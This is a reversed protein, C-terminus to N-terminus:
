PAAGPQLTSVIEALRCSDIASVPGAANLSILTSDSTLYQRVILVGQGPPDAGPNIPYTSRQSVGAVTGPLPDIAENQEVQTGPEHGAAFSAIAAAPFAGRYDPQEGAIVICSGGAASAQWTRVVGSGDQTRTAVPRYTIDGPMEFQLASTGETYHNLGSLPLVQTRGDNLSTPRASVGVQSFCGSLLLMLGAVLVVTTVPRM